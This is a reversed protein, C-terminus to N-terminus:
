QKDLRQRVLNHQKIPGTHTSILAPINYITVPGTVLTPLDRYEKHSELSAVGELVRDNLWYEILNLM